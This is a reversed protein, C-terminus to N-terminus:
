WEAIDDLSWISGGLMWSICHVDWSLLEHRAISGLLLLDPSGIIFILGFKGGLLLVKWKIQKAYTSFLLSWIHKIWM